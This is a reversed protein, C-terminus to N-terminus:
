GSHKAYHTTLKSIIDVLLENMNNFDFHPNKNYFEIAKVSKLVYDGMFLKYYVIKIEKSILCLFSFM